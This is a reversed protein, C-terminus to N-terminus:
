RPTDPTDHHVINVRAREGCLRIRVRADDTFAPKPPAAAKQARLQRSRVIEKPSQFNTQAKAGPSYAKVGQSSNAKVRRAAINTVNETQLHWNTVAVFPEAIHAQQAFRASRAM